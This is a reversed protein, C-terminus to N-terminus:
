ESRSMSYPTNEHQLALSQPFTQLSPRCIYYWLVDLHCVGKLPKLVAGFHPVADLLLLLFVLRLFVERRGWGRAGVLFFRFAEPQKYTLVFQFCTLPACSTQLPHISIFRWLHEDVTKNKFLLMKNTNTFLSTKFGISVSKHLQSHKETPTHECELSNTQVTLKKSASHCYEWASKVKTLKLAEQKNCLHASSPQTKHKKKKEAETRSFQKEQQCSLLTASSNLKLSVRKGTKGLVEM